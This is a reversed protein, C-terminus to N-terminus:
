EDTKFIISNTIVECHIVEPLINLVNANEILIFM